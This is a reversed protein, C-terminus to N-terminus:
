PGSRARPSGARPWARRRSARRREGRAASRRRCPRPPILDLRTEVGPRIRSDASGSMVLERARVEHRAGAQEPERVSPRVEHRAGAQESRGDGWRTEGSNWPGSIHSPPERGAKMYARVAAEHARRAREYESVAANRACTPAECMLRRGAWSNRNVISPAALFISHSDGALKRPTITQATDRRRPLVAELSARRGGRSAM